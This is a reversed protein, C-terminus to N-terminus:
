VVLRAAVNLVPHSKQITNKPLGLYVTKRMIPVISSDEEACHTEPNYNM